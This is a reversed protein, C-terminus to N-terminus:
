LLGLIIFDAIRFGVSNLLGLLTSPSGPGPRLKEWTMNDKTFPSPPQQGLSHLHLDTSWKRVSEHIDCALLNNLNCKPQETLWM